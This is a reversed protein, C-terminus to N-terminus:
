KQYIVDIWKVHWSIETLFNKNLHVHDECSLWLLDNDTLTFIEWLIPTAVKMSIYIMRCNSINNRTTCQLRVLKLIRWILTSEVRDSLTLIQAEIYADMVDNTTYRTVIGVFLFILSHKAGICDWSIRFTFASWFANLWRYSRLSYIM